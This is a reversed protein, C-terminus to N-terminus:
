IYPPDGQGGRNRLSDVLTKDQVCNSAVACCLPVSTVSIDRRGLVTKLQLIQLHELKGYSEHISYITVNVM